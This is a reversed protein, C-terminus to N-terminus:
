DQNWPRGDPDTMMASDDRLPVPLPKRRPNRSSKAPVLANDLRFFGVALFFILPVGLFLVDWGHFSPSVPM